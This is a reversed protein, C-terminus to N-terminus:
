GGPDPSGAADLWEAAMEEDAWEDGDEGETPPPAKIRAELANRDSEKAQGSLLRFEVWNCLRSLTWTLPDPMGRDAALGDFTWRDHVYSSILRSAEWWPRDAVRALMARGIRNCGSEDLGEEPDAVLEWVWRADEVDLLDLLLDAPEDSFLAAAWVGAPSETLVFDRVRETGTDPDTYRLRFGPRTRLRDRFEVLARDSM